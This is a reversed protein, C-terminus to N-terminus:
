KLGFTGETRLQQLLLCPRGDCGAEQQNSWGWVWRQVGSSLSTRKGLPLYGSEVEKQITVSIIVQELNM